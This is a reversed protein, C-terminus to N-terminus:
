SALLLLHCRCATAVLIDGHVLSEKQVVVVDGAKLPEHGAHERAAAGLSYYRERGGIELVIMGPTVGTVRLPQGERM